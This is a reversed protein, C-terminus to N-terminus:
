ILELGPNIYGQSGLAALRHGIRTGAPQDKRISRTWNDFQAYSNNFNWLATITETKLVAIFYRPIGFLSFAEVKEM